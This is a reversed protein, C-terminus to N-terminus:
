IACVFEISFILGDNRSIDVTGDMEQVTLYILKMGLSDSNHIKEMDVHDNNSEHYVLTYRNKEKKLTITVQDERDETTFAHKISNTFLENLIIGLKFMTEIPLSIQNADVKVSTERGYAENILNTLAITYSKFKVKDLNHNTYLAEHIMAIAQIRLKNEKLVDYCYSNQPVGKKLNRMQIGFISAIVNLNNRIRHHIEKLLLAKLKDDKELKAYPIETSLHYFIALIIVAISTTFMNFDTLLLTFLPHDTLERHRIITAVVWYALHVITMLLATKLRFFFYFGFIILFPYITIFEFYQKSIVAFSSEVDIIIILIIAFLKTNYSRLYLILLGIMIFTLTMKIYFINYIEMYLALLGLGSYIIIASIFLGVLMIEKHDKSQFIQSIKKVM